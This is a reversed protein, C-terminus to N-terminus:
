AHPKPRGLPLPIADPAGDVAVKLLVPGRGKVRIGGPFATRPKYDCPEFVIEGFGLARGIQTTPQGNRDSMRGYYLFVRHQLQAPVSLTVSASGEVIVGMKATLQGNNTESMQSLPRRPVGLPGAVVARQRWDAPGPGGTIPGRECSAVQTSGPAAAAASVLVM